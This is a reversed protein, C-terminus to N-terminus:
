IEITKIMVQDIMPRTSIFLSKYCAPCLIYYPESKHYNVNYVAPIAKVGLDQVILKKWGTVALNDEEGCYSCKM